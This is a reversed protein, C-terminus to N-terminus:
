FKTKLLNLGDNMLLDICSVNQQFGIKDEFVQSYKYCSSSLYNKPTIQNRLDTLEEKDFEFINDNILEIKSEIKCISFIKSIMKFNFDFLFEYQTQYFPKLVHEFHEFYPAKKYCSEITKWHLVQWNYNNNIKIDKVLQKKDRGGKIPISLTILGNSGLVYTKNRFSMKPSEDLLLIKIHKYEISNIIWNVCPIYQLDILLTNKKNNV